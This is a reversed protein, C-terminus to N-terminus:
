TKSNVGTADFFEEFWESHSSKGRQYKLSQSPLFTQSEWYINIVQQGIKKKKENWEINKKMKRKSINKTLKDIWVVKMNWLILFLFIRFEFYSPMVFAIFSIHHVRIGVRRVFRIMHMNICFKLYFVFSRIFIIHSILNYEM